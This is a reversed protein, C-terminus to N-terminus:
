QNHPNPQFIIHRLHHIQGTKPTDNLHQQPTDTKPNKFIPVQSPPSFPVQYHAQNTPANQHNNSTLFATYPNLYPKNYVIFLM